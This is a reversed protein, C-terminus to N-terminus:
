KLMRLPNLPTQYKQIELHLHGGTALGTMGSLSILDGQKVEAGEEVKLESNHGYVSVYGNKHRLVILNGYDDKWGSFIVEGDAVAKVPTGIEASIDLGNHFRKKGSFPDSRTGFGSTIRGKLPWIFAMKPTRSVPTEKIRATKRNDDSDAPVPTKADKANRSKVNKAIEIKKHEVGDPIFIKEGAKLMKVTSPNQAKIVAVSSKSANGIKELSDGKKVSYFYGNRNPVFIEKGERIQDPGTIQNARIILKHSTSFKRAIGWLSDNKKVKYDTYHWRSDKKKLQDLIENKSLNKGSKSISKEIISDDFSDDHIVSGDKSDDDELPKSSTLSLSDIIIANEIVDVDNSKKKKEASFAYSSTFLVTILILSVPFRM